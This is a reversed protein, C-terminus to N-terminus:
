PEYSFESILSIDANALQDIRMIMYKQNPVCLCMYRRFVRIKPWKKANQARPPQDVFFNDFHLGSVSEGDFKAIYPATIDFVMHCMKFNIKLFEVTGGSMRFQLGFPTWFSIRWRIQCM